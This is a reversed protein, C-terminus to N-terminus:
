RAGARSSSWSIAVARMRSLPAACNFNSCRISRSASSNHPPWTLIAQTSRVVMFGFRIGFASSAASPRTHAVSFIIMSITIWLTPLRSPHILLKGNKMQDHVGAHRHLEDHGDQQQRRDRRPKEDHLAHQVKAFRPLFHFGELLLEPGTDIQALQEPLAVALDVAIVDDAHFADKAGAELFKRSQALLNLVIGIRHHFTRLARHADGHRSLLFFHRRMQRKECRNTRG